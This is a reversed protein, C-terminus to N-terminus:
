VRNHKSAVVMKKQEEAHRDELAKLAAKRKMEEVFVDCHRKVPPRWVKSQKNFSFLVKNPSSINTEVVDKKEHIDAEQTKKGVLFEQWQNARTNLAQLKTTQSLVKIHPTKTKTEDAFNLVDEGQRVITAHLTQPKSIIVNCIEYTNCLKLTGVPAASFPDLTIANSKEITLGEIEAYFLELETDDAM